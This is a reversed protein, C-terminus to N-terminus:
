VLEKELLDNSVKAVFLPKLPMFMVGHESLLLPQLLLRFLLM